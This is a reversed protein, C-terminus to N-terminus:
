NFFYMNCRDMAPPTAAKTKVAMRDPMGNVNPGFSKRPAATPIAAAAIVPAM